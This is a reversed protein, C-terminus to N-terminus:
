RRCSVALLVADYRHGHLRLFRLHGAYRSSALDLMAESVRQWSNVFPALQSAAYGWACTLILHRSTSTM